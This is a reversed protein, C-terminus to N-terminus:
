DLRLGGSQDMPQDYGSAGRRTLAHVEHAGDRFTVVHNQVATLLPGAQGIIGSDVDQPLLEQEGPTSCEFEV